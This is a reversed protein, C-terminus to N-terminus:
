THANSIITCRLREKTFDNTLLVLVDAEGEQLIELLQVGDFPLVKDLVRHDKSLLRGHEVADIGKGIVLLTLRLGILKWEVEQTELASGRLEGKSCTNPCGETGLGEVPSNGTHHVVRLGNLEEVADLVRLNNLEKTSIRVLEFTLELAHGPALELEDDRHLV